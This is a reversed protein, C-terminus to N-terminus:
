GARYWMVTACFVQFRRQLHLKYHSAAAVCLLPVAAGGYMLGLLSTNLNRNSSLLEWLIEHLAKLLLLIAAPRKGWRWLFMRLKYEAARERGLPLNCRWWLLTPFGCLLSNILVNLKDNNNLLRYLEHLIAFLWPALRYPFYSHM